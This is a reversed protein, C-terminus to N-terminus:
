VAKLESSFLRLAEQFKSLQALYKKNNMSSADDVMKSLKQDAEIFRTLLLSYKDQSVAQLKRKYITALKKLNVKDTALDSFGQVFTDSSLDSRFDFEDVFKEGLGAESLSQCFLKHVDERAFKNFFSELMSALQSFQKNGLASLQKQPLDFIIPYIQDGISKNIGHKEIYQSIKDELLDQDAQLRELLQKRADFARTIEEVTMSFEHVTEESSARVKKSENLMDQSSFGPKFVRAFTGDTFIGPKVQQENEGSGLNLKAMNKQIGSLMSDLKEQAENAIHHFKAEPYILNSFRSSIDKIRKESVVQKLLDMLKMSSIPKEFRSQNLDLLIDNLKLNILKDALAFNQLEQATLTAEEKLRLVVDIANGMHYPFSFEFSLEAFDKYAKVLPQSIDENFYKQVWSVFDTKTNKEASIYAKRLLSFVSDFAKMYKESDQSASISDFYQVRSADKLTKMDETQIQVDGSGSMYLKSKWKNNADILADAIFAIKQDFNKNLM